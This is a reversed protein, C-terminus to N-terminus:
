CVTGKKQTCAQCIGFFELMHRTVTFHYDNKIRVEEDHLNARVYVDAVTGCETCILHHHHTLDALEWRGIGDGFDIAKLFGTQELASFDRYLTTKNPTLGHEALYDLVSHITQPKPDDQFLAMLHRRVPTLRLKSTQM